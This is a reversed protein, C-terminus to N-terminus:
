LEPVVAIHCLFTGYVVERCPIDVKFTIWHNYKAHFSPFYFANAKALQDEIERIHSPSPHNLVDLDQSSIMLLFNSLRLDLILVGVPLNPSSSLFRAMLDIAEGNVCNDSLFQALSLNTMGQLGYLSLRSGWGLVKFRNFVLQIEEGDQHTAQLREVWSYSKTWQNRSDILSSVEGWVTLVWLPLFEKHNVPNCISRFALRTDDSSNHLHTQLSRLYKAPPIPLKALESPNYNRSPPSTSFSTKAPPFVLAGKQEQLVHFRFRSVPTDLDPSSIVSLYREPIALGPVDVALELPLSPMDGCHMCDEAKCLDGFRINQTSLLGHKGRRALFPSVSRAAPPGPEIPRLPRTRIAQLSWPCYGNGIDSGHSTSLWPIREWMLGRSQNEATPGSFM